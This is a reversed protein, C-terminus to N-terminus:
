QEWAIYKNLFERFKEVNANLWQGRYDQRFQWMQDKILRFPSLWHTERYESNLMRATNKLDKIQHYINYGSRSLTYCMLVYPDMKEKSM